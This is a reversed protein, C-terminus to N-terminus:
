VESDDDAIQQSVMVQWAMCAGLTKCKLAKMTSNVAAYNNTRCIINQPRALKTEERRACLFPMNTRM